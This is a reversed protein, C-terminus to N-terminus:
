TLSRPTRRSNAFLCRAPRCTGRARGAEAKGDTRHPTPGNVRQEPLESSQDEPRRERESRGLRGRPARQREKRRVEPLSRSGREPNKEESRSVASSPAGSFGGGEGWGMSPLEGDGLALSRWAPPSHQSTAKSRGLAQHGDRGGDEVARGMPLEKVVVDAETKHLYLIRNKLPFPGGGWAGRPGGTTHPSPGSRDTNTCSSDVSWAM